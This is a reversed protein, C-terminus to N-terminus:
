NLFNKVQYNLQDEEFSQEFFLYKNGKVMVTAPISGSWEPSVQPLWSDFDPQHLLWVESKLKKKEIFPILSSAAIKKSDLSVLIVKIKQDAFTTELKDFYPLEAVCPRCWTAWFNIIYLTDNTPHLAPKFANFDYVPVRTNGDEIWGQPVAQQAAGNFAICTFIIVTLQRIM